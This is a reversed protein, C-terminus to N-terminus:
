NKLSISIYCDPVLGDANLDANVLNKKLVVSYSGGSTITFADNETSSMPIYVSGTKVPIRNVEGEDVRYRLTILDSQIGNDIASGASVLVTSDPFTLEIIKTSDVGQLYLASISDALYRCEAGLLSENQKFTVVEATEFIVPLVFALVAATILLKHPMDMVAYKDKNISMCRPRRRRAPRGYVRDM